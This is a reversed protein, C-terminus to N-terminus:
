HSAAWWDCRFPPCRLWFGEISPFQMDYAHDRAGVFIHQSSYVVNVSHGRHFSLLFCRRPQGVCSVQWCSAYEPCFCSRRFQHSATNWFCGRCVISSGKLVKHVVSPGVARLLCTKLAKERLRKDFLCATKPRHLFAHLTGRSIEGASLAQHLLMRCLAFGDFHCIPMLSESLIYNTKMGWTQQKCIVVNTLWFFGISTLWWKLSYSFNVLCILISMIWKYTMPIYVYNWKNHPIFGVLDIYVYDGNFWTPYDGIAIM